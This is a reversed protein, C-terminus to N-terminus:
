IGGGTCVIYNSKTKKKSNSNDHQVHIMEKQLFYLISNFKISNLQISNPRGTENSIPSKLLGVKPACGFM